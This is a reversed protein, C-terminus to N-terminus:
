RKLRQQSFVLTRLTQSLTYNIGVQDTVFLMDPHFRIRITTLATYMVQFPSTGPKLRLLPVQNHGLALSIRQKPLM